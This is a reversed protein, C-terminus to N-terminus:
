ANERLSNCKKSYNADMEDLKPRIHTRWAYRLIGTFEPEEGRFSYAFIALVLGSREEDTELERFVAEFEQLLLVSKTAM